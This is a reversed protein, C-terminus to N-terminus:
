LTFVPVGTTFAETKNLSVFAINEETGRRWKMHLSTSTHIQPHNSILKMNWGSHVRRSVCSATHVGYGTPVNQLVSLSHSSYFCLGAEEGYRSLCRLEFHLGIQMKNWCQSLSM